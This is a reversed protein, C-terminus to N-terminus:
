EDTSDSDIVEEDERYADQISTYQYIDPFKVCDIKNFYASEASEFFTEKLVIGSETMLVGWEQSILDLPFYIDVNFTTDNPVTGVFFYFVKGYIEEDVLLYGEVKREGYFSLQLYTATDKQSQYCYLAERAPVQLKDHAKHNCGILSICFM